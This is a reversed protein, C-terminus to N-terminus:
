EDVRHKKLARMDMVLDYVKAPPPRAGVTVTYPFRPLGKAFRERMAMYFMERPVWDSNTSVSGFEDAFVRKTSRDEVSPTIIYVANNGAVPLRRAADRVMIWERGQPEAILTFANRNAVIASLLIMLMLAGHHTVVNIKGSARM